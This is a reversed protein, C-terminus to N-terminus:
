ATTWHEPMDFTLGFWKQQLKAMEGSKRAGLLFSDLLDKVETNGKKVAWAIYIKKSVAQGLEFVGPKDNVLSQLNIQTNVVYDTRGIALDQYAEPYSVYQVVEGMKGGTAHLMEELEPLSSLMASGAQVGCKKGALDKVSAIAANGKKKVYYDTSEAIPSCFDLFKEREATILAATVAADYKGSGVGPLLGTWPITEQKIPFPVTKRMLELLETDYGTPRGDQIFEFPKFDDETAVIMSGRAKIEALTAAAARGALGAGTLLLAGAAGTTLLGRRTTDM